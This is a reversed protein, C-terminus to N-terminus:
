KNNEMSMREYELWYEEFAAKLKWYNTQDANLFCQSLAKVFSGGYMRMCEIVALDHEDYQAM